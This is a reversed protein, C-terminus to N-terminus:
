DGGGGEGAELAEAVQEIMWVMAHSARDIHSGDALRADARHLALFIKAATERQRRNRFQVDLHRVPSVAGDIMPIEITATRSVPPGIESPEEVVEDPNGDILESSAGAAQATKRKAM